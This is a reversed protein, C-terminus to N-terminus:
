SSSLTVPACAASGGVHTRGVGIVFELLGRFDSRRELCGERGQRLLLERAHSRYSVRGSPAPKYLVHPPDSSHQLLCAFSLLMVAPRNIARPPAGSSGPSCTPRLHGGCPGSRNICVNRNHSSPQAGKSVAGLAVFTWLSPRRQLNVANVGWLEWPCM